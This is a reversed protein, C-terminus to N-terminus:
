AQNKPIPHWISPACHCHRTASPRRFDKLISAGLNLCEPVQHPLHGRYTPRLETPWAQVMKLFCSRNQLNNRTNQQLFVPKWPLFGGPPLDRCRLSHLKCADRSQPSPIPSVRKAGHLSNCGGVGDFGKGEVKGLCGVQRGITDFIPIQPALWSARKHM